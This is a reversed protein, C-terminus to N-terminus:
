TFFFQWNANLDFWNFKGASNPCLYGIYSYDNASFVSYCGSNGTALFCYNKDADFILLIEQSSPKVTFYQCSFDHTSCIYDGPISLARFPDIMINRVPNIQWNRAPNIQWNRVPNIQWNRVPNIQWNRVPNIQWNRVPNIQWNRVPNIQWNRVPNIQWNHVPNVQYSSAPNRSATKIPILM